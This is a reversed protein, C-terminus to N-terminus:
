SNFFNQMAAIAEMDQLISFHSCGSIKLLEVNPILAAMRRFHEEKIVDHQAYLILMRTNIGRLDNDTLGIDNFMLELLM